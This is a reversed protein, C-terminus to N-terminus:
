VTILLIDKNNWVYIEWKPVKFIAPESLHDRQVPPWFSLHVTTHMEM